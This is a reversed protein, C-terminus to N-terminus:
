APGSAAVISCLVVLVVTVASLGYREFKTKGALNMATNIAM